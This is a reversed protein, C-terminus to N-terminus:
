STVEPTAGPAPTLASQLAAVQAQAKELESQLTALQTTEGEPAATAAPTQAPVQAAAENSADDAVKETLPPPLPATVPHVLGPIDQELRGVLALFVKALSDGSALQEVASSVEPIAEDALKGADDRLQNLLQM